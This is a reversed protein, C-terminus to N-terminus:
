SRVNGAGTAPITAPRDSLRGDPHRTLIHPATTWKGAVMITKGTTISQGPSPTV